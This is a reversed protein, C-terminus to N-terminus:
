NFEPGLARTLIWPPLTVMEIGNYQDPWNDNKVCEVYKKLWAEYVRTGVEMTAPCPTMLRFEYPSSLDVALWYFIPTKKYRMEFAKCYFAAQAHYNYKVISDTFDKLSSTTKVDLIFNKDPDFADLRAKCVTEGNPKFLITKEHISSELMSYIEPKEAIRKCAEFYENHEEESIYFYGLAEKAAMEVKLAKGERTRSDYDPPLLIVKEAYEMPELLALHFLTGRRRAGRTPEKPKVKDKILRKYFYPSRNMLGLESISPNDVLARHEDNTIDLLEADQNM